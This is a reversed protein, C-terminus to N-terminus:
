DCPRMLPAHVFGTINFWSLEKRKDMLDVEVWNEGYKPLGIFKVRQGPALRAVIEGDTSPEDRVNVAGISYIYTNKSLGVSDCPDHPPPECGCGSVSMFVMLVISYKGVYNM